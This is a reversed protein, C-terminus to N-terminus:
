AARTSSTTSSGRTKRRSATRTVPGRIAVYPVITLVFAVILAQLPYFWRFLIFQYVSDLVLSMLFLRGIDKWGARILIPRADRLGVRIALFTAVIPQLILRLHLPGATRRLLHQWERTLFDDM